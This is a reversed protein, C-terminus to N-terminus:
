LNLSSHSQFYHLEESNVFLNTPELGVTKAFASIYSLPYLMISGGETIGNWNKLNLTLTVPFESVEHTSHTTPELGVRGFM